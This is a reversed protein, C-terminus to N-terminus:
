VDQAMVTVRSNGEARKCAKDLISKIAANLSPFMDSSVKLEKGDATKQAHIYDNVAKKVCLSATEEEIAMKISGKM